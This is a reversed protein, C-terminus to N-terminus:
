LSNVNLSYEILVDPHRVRRFSNTSKPSTSSLPFRPNSGDPLCEIRQRATGSSRQCLSCNPRASCILIHAHFKNWIIGILLGINREQLISAGVVSPFSLAGVFGNLLQAGFDRSLDSPKASGHCAEHTSSDEVSALFNREIEIAAGMVVLLADADALINSTDEKMQQVNLIGKTTLIQDWFQMSGLRERKNEWPDIM